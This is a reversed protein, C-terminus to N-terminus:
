KTTFFLDLGRGNDSEITLYSFHSLSCVTHTLTSWSKWAWCIACIGNSLTWLGWIQAISTVELGLLNCLHWQESDMLELNSCYIYLLSHDAQDLISRAALLSSLGISRLKCQLPQCMCKCWSFFGVPHFISQTDTSPSLNCQHQLLM